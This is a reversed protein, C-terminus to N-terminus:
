GPPRMVGIRVLWPLAIQAVDYRVGTFVDNLNHDAFPLVHVEHNTRGRQRLEGIRDISPITPLADDYLGWIWLTPTELHELVPAPDYGAPGTYEIALVDATHFRRWPTANNPETRQTNELYTEHIAEQGASVAPGCVAIIFRVGPERTAALPMIWGAQSGGMLGVRATDIDSQVSLWRVAHVVDEALTSFNAASGEVSFTEFSGTSQGVGRKDFTLVAFGMRLAMNTYFRMEARTTPASGHVTVIAPLDGRAGAPRYLTAALNVDDATIVVDKRVADDIPAAQVSGVFVALSFVVQGVFLGCAVLILRSM